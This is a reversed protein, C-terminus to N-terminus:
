GKLFDKKQKEMEWGDTWASVYKDFLLGFNSVGLMNSKLIETTDQPLPINSAM